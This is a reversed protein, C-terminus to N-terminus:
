YIQLVDHHRRMDFYRAFDPILAATRCPSGDEPHYDFEAKSIFLLLALYEVEVGTSVQETVLYRHRFVFIKELIVSNLFRRRQRSTRTTPIYKV